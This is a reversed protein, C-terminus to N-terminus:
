STPFFAVLVNVGAQLWQGRSASVQKLWKLLFNAIDDIAEFPLESVEVGCVFCLAKREAQTWM